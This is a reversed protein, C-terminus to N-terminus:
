VAADQMKERHITFAYNKREIEHINGVITTYM